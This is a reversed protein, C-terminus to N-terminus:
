VHPNNVLRDQSTLVDYSSGVLEHDFPINWCKNWPILSVIDGMLTIHLMNWLSTM